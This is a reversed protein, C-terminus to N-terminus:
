YQQLELYEKIRAKVSKLSFIDEIRDKVIDTGLDAIFDIIISMRIERNIKDWLSNASFSKNKRYCCITVSM